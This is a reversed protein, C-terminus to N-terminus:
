GRIIFYTKDSRVIIELTVVYVRQSRHHLIVIHNQSTHISHVTVDTRVVNSFLLNFIRDIKLINVRNIDYTM